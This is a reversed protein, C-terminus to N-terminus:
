LQQHKHSLDLPLELQLLQAVLVLDLRVFVLLQPCAAGSELILRSCPQRFRQLVAAGSLPLHGEVM